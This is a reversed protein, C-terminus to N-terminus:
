MSNQTCYPVLKIDHKSAFILELVVTSQLQLMPLEGAADLRTNLHLNCYCVLQECM